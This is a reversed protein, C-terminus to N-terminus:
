SSRDVIRPFTVLFDVGFTTPIYMVSLVLVGKLKQRSFVWVAEISSMSKMM